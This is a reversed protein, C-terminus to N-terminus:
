SPHDTPRNVCCWAGRENGVSQPHGDLLAPGLPLGDNVAVLGGLEGRPGESTSSDIGPQQRGHARHTVAEVVRDDFGEPAPHLDLEEIPLPPLGSDLQRARDELVELDEVIALAAVRGQTHECRDLELSPM